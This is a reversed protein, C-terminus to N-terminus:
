GERKGLRGGCLLWVLVIPWIASAAVIGMADEERYPIKNKIFWRAMMVLAVGCGITYVVAGILIILGSQM